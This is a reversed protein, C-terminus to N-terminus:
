ATSHNLKMRPFLGVFYIHDSHNGKIGSTQIQGNPLNPGKIGFAQARKPGNTGPNSATNLRRRITNKLAISSDYMSTPGVKKNFNDYTSIKNVPKKGNGVSQHARDKNVPM